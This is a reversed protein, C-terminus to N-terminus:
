SRGEVNCNARDRRIEEGDGVVFDLNYVATKHVKGDMHSYEHSDPVIFRFYCHLVCKNKGGVREFGDPRWKIATVRAPLRQSVYRPKALVLDGVEVHTGRETTWESEDAFAEKLRYWPKKPDNWASRAM